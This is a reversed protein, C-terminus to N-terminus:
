QAEAGGLVESPSTIDAASAPAAVGNASSPAAKKSRSRSATRKSKKAPSAPAPQSKHPKKKSASAKAKSKIKKPAKTKATAKKKAARKSQKKSTAAVARGETLTMGFKKAFRAETKKYLRQGLILNNLTVVTVGIKTAAKVTGGCKEILAKAHSIMEKQQTKTM